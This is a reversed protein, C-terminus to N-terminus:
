KPQSRERRLAFEIRAKTWGLAKLEFAAHDLAPDLVLARFYAARAEIRKGQLKLAHGLQLYTDAIDADLNLSTRYASEAGNLDGSEKLAHGYQVWIAPNGPGQDLAKRYCQAATQWDGSDRARDARSLLSTEASKRRVRPSVLGLRPLFGAGGGGPRVGNEGSAMDSISTEPNEPGGVAWTAVRREFIKSIAALEGKPSGSRIEQRLEGEPVSRSASAVRTPARLEVGQAEEFCGHIINSIRKAQVAWSNRQVWDRQRRVAETREHQNALFSVIGDTIEWASTGPLQYVVESLDAFVSLPTTL